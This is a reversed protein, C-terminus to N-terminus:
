TLGYRPVLGTVPRGTRGYLLKGPFVSSSASTRALSQYMSMEGASTPPAARSPSM